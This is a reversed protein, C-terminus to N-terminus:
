PHVSQRVPKVPTDQPSTQNPEAKYWAAYMTPLVLLTLVTAGFLGGAIAVAMPGWFVSSVLPIMGLIAAAATLLIPRFRAVTANIIADWLPDGAQLQQEIQDILIVSNRMIIGALALLGLQVVFGMPRGTLLLGLSVGIIGLPATLLTLVMKPISQLQFMLLTTIIFVMVPVPQMLWKTAKTSMEMPGGIDISYGPPLSARLEKLNDYAAKTADNGLVGEITNAQVTITPKLDRRWILGEEADYSIKAIQDLPIYKGNGIHINLDKLRSLDNRNQADVRFAISVTKDKERYETIDTGSLLAQLGSALAQSDLGLMRAKDQDIALHMVKSKENWDLNIGTLTPNTAMNDQVQKAIARVKDHDNGSVRLMVPYPDSPGTKILKTNGRVNAFETTFLEQAKKTLETRASLDKATIVFQAFNTNPLTPEATLVFRPAGQGVYYTYNVVNNDGALQQAFREAEQQTAQLSAGQPLQMDMILEPRTSAPFFEQKVLGLLLISGVFCAVTTALVKKRHTLCSTLIKKFMRYFRTDYVNYDSTNSAPHVKVLNYGLLPTVAGAAVWSLLLAITVVSFISGVFESATGKSFGVPIFGACTILAGTLRPAATSSYAYCAADFRSWGQELKVIMMEIVIIADDVLLGLAIILAGLSIKHLDIGLTRMVIFVGTIVLPICLAVIVGSRMGLSIFSVILVIAVAELLSKVFEDISSAVVKPQDAVTNLELGAPLDTQVQSLTKNLNQGLTLINGGREMSLALGVAPQGNYYMKPDPPDIYSREVTAIDGLRFTHGGARIPLNKLDDLNEFMGTIRVYVNDSVTELMGSPAMANQAQIATSIDAPTIGLKSLKNTEMEIYIKETQVGILEIKKVSPVGLLTRRITEAKERLEEYTYGDGTLAYVCGYVDDFRDNFYPGNVGAPLTPKIDNVMNRVELWTPRIQSETVADDRLVVYIISQGPRSYSKLYDLGPTDQLKKEIKDTVQEEIQRATAGPWNVSVIMQRITFDPDEMRGLNQYSFIGGLFIVTIFYYVLQKHNLAWETLNFPRM